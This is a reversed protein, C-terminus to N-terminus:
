SAVLIRLFLTFLRSRVQGVEKEAKIIKKRSDAKM